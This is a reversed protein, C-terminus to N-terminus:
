SLRLRLPHKWSDSHVYSLKVLKLWAGAHIMEWLRRKIVSLDLSTMVLAKTNGTWTTSASEILVAVYHGKARWGPFLRFPWLLLKLENSYKLRKINEDKIYYFSLWGWSLLSSLSFYPINLLYIGDRMMEARYPQFHSWHPVRDGAVEQFIYMKGQQQLSLFVGTRSHRRAM